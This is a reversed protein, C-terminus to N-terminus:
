ETKSVILKCGELGIINNIRKVSFYDPNRLHQSAILRIFTIQEIGIEYNNFQMHGGHPEDGWGCFVLYKESQYYEERLLEWPVHYVKTSDNSLGVLRETVDAAFYLHYRGTLGQEPWINFETNPTMMQSFASNSMIYFAM